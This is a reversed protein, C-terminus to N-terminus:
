GGKGGEVADIAAQLRAADRRVFRAARIRGVVGRIGVMVVWATMVGLFGRLM